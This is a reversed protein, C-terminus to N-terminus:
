AVANSAIFLDLLYGMLFDSKATYVALAMM